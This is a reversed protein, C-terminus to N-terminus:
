TKEYLRKQINEAKGVLERWVLEPVNSQVRYRDIYSSLANIHFVRKWGLDDERQSYPHMSVPARKLGQLMHYGYRTHQSTLVQAVNNLIRKIDFDSSLIAVDKNEALSTYLAAAALHEDAHAVRKIRSGHFPDSLYVVGHLPATKVLAQTQETVLVTLDVMSQYLEKQAPTFLQVASFTDGAAQVLSTFLERKTASLKYKSERGRRKNISSLHTFQQEMWQLHDNLINWYNKYEELNQVTTKVRPDSIIMKVAILSNKEREISAWKLQSYNRQEYLEETFQANTSDLVNTDVLIVQVKCSLIDLFPDRAGLAQPPSLVAPQNPFLNEFTLEDIGEADRLLELLGSKTRVFEGTSRVLNQLTM